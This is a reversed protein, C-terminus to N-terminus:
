DNLYNHEQEEELKDVLEQKRRNDEYLTFVTEDPYLDRFLFRVNQQKKFGKKYFKSDVIEVIWREYCYITDEGSINFSNGSRMYEVLKAKGILKKETQHDFFIDLVENKKYKKLIEM